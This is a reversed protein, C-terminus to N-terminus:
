RIIVLQIRPLIAIGSEMALNPQSTFILDICSFSTAKLHTLENILQQLGFQSTITDIKLGEYSSINNKFWNTTKGNFDALADILISNKNIIADLTLQFNDFFTEFTYQTQSPSRYLCLFRCLKGGIRIEFNIRENLFQIDILKLPLSNVSGRKTNTPNDTDVLNCGPLELNDDDSPISSDLYTKSLCIIDIKNISIYARLLSLKIFNHACISNLNWHCISLCDCSNAKPGPNEEIDGSLKIVLSYLWVYHVYLLVSIFYLSHFLSLHLFRINQASSHSIVYRVSLVILFIVIEILHTKLNNKQLSPGHTKKLPLKRNNFVGVTWRYQNLNVTM